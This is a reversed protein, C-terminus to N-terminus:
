RWAARARRRKGSGTGAGSYACICFNITIKEYSIIYQNLDYGNCFDIWLYTLCALEKNQKFQCRSSSTFNVVKVKDSTEEHIFDWIPFIEGGKLIAKKSHDFVTYSYPNKGDKGHFVQKVGPTPVVKSVLTKLFNKNKQYRLPLM